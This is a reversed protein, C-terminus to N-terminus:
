LVAMFYLDVHWGPSVFLGLKAPSGLNINWLYLAQPGYQDHQETIVWAGSIPLQHLLCIQAIRRNYRDGSGVVSGDNFGETFGAQPPVAGEVQVVVGYSGGIDYTGAPLLFAGGTHFSSLLHSGAGYPGNTDLVQQLTALPPTTVGDIISTVAPM